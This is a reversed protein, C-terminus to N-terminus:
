AHAHHVRADKRPQYHTLQAPTADGLWAHPSTLDRCYQAGRATPRETLFGARALAALHRQVEPVAFTPRWHHALEVPTWWTSPGMSLWLARSSMDLANGQSM